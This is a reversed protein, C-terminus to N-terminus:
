SGVHQALFEDIAAFAAQLDAESFDGLHHRGKVTVLRNPVGARDLAEHLRTAHDYPVIPDQDGHLTLIPPGGSRVYRIPSVRKAVEKRNEMGGMWKLAYTKANPGEILDTVDTIGAWSVIAAVQLEPFPLTAASNPQDAPCRGDLATSAPLMGAILALHGGASRGTLVIREPDFGYQEANRKVWWVACRVDEVAAPALAVSALRYEVNVAAWGKSLYPMLQLTFAEKAGGTWGGGHIYIVTPVSKRGKSSANLNRAPTFVDLKLEVSDAKLYTVNPVVEYNALLSVFGSDAIAAGSATSLAGFLITYLVSLLRM